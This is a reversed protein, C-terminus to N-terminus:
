DIRKLMGAFYRYHRFGHPIPSSSKQFKWTQRGQLDSDTIIFNARIFKNMDTMFGVVLADDDPSSAINAIKMWEKSDYYVRMVIVETQEVEKHGSGGCTPCTGFRFPMPGGSKYRNASKKGIPDYTCNSCAEMKSPYMLTCNVGFNSNIFDDAMGEYASWVSDPIDM